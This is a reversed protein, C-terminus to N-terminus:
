AHEDALLQERLEEVLADSVHLEGQIFDMLSGHEGAIHELAGTMREEAQARREEISLHQRAVMEEVTSDMGYFTIMEEAREPDIFVDRRLHHSLSYDEIITEFPVELLTLLLACAFGTRDQGATCHVLMAPAEPEALTRFFQRFLEVQQYALIHYGVEDLQRLDMEYDRMLFRVCLQGPWVSPWFDRERDTRLDAVVGIGLQSVRQWDAAVLETLHDSRYVRGWRTTQGSDNAYGGLDRFNTAGELDILRDSM